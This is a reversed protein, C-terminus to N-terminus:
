SIYVVDTQIIKGMCMPCTQNKEMIAHMCSQCCALHNCPRTVINRPHEMCIICTTDPNLQHQKALELEVMKIQLKAQEIELEREMMDIHKGPIPDHKRRRAPVKDPDKPRRVRRDPKALANHPPKLHDGDDVNVNVEKEESRLLHQHAQSTIDENAHHKEVMHKVWKTELKYKRNCQPCQFLM